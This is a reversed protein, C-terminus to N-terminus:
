KFRKMDFAVYARQEEASMKDRQAKPLDHFAPKDGAGDGANSGALSNASPLSKAPRFIEWEPQKLVSKVFESIPKSQGIEDLVNVSDDDGIEIKSGYKTEFHTKFVDLRNAPIGAENAAEKLAGARLRRTGRDEAKKLAEAIAPSIREGSPTEETTGAVSQKGKVVRTITAALPNIAAQIAAQVQELTVSNNASGNTQTTAAGTTETTQAAQSGANPAENSM